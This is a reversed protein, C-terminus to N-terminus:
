ASLAVFDHQALCGEFRQGRLYWLGYQSRTSCIEPCSSDNGTGPFPRRDQPCGIIKRWVASHPTRSRALTRECEPWVLCM